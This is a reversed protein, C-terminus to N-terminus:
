ASEFTILDMSFRFTLSGSATDAPILSRVYIAKSAATLLEIVASRAAQIQGYLKRSAFATLVTPEKPLKMSM